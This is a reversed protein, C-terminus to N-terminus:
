PVLNIRQLTYVGSHPSTYKCPHALQLLAARGGGLFVASERNIEYFKALDLSALGISPDGEAIQAILSSLREKFEKGSISQEAKDCPASPDKDKYADLLKRTNKSFEAQGDASLEARHELLVSLVHHCDKIYLGAGASVVAYKLLQRVSYGEM